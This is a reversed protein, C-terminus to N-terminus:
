IELRDIERRDPCLHGYLETIYSSSHGAWRSVEWMSVGSMLCHSVFTHRLTHLGVDELGAKLVMSKFNRSATDEQILRGRYPFCLGDRRKEFVPWLKKHLPLVREKRSKTQHQEKNSVYLLKKTIDVDDYELHILERRRLGTYIATLVFDELYTGKTADLVVEIESKSLFRKKNRQIGSIKSLQVIPNKQIFDLRHAHNLLAGIVKMINSVTTPRNKKLQLAKYAELHELTIENLASVRLDHLFALFNALTREKTYLWESSLINRGQRIHEDVFDKIQMKPTALGHGKQYLDNYIKNAHLVALEKSTAKTSGRKRQGNIHIIYHWFKGKKSLKFPLHKM